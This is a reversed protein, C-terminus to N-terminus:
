VTVANSEVVGVLPPSVQVVVPAVVQVKVLRVLPSEYVKVTIAVFTSPFEGADGAELITTGFMETGSAGFFRVAMAIDAVETLTDHVAGV